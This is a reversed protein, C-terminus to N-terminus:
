RAGKRSLFMGVNGIVVMVILLFMAFHLTPYYATGQGVNDEKLDPFGPIPPNSGAVGNQMLGELDYVGKLGGAFGIIQGSQYFNNTEPVMVGTVAMALPPQGRKVREITFNSTKSATIVIMLSFDSVKNVNQLVPSSLVERQGQGPATEKRGSFTARIDTVIGNTAAESGPFFGVNVWQNWREYPKEQRSARQANIQAIADQYVAPAQPDGSSYVAFKIGRRMLIKVVANFAGKSEGRTSNTWDSAILVPKDEPITMLRTYLDISAPDPKNPVTMPFFLPITTIVILILYIAFKPLAQLKAGLTSNM